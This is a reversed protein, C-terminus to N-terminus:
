SREEEHEVKPIRVTVTTGVDLESHLTIGYREGFWIKLRDNVNKVGIGGSDSKEKQLIKRCQEETMGVGNDSVTILIDDPCDPAEHVSIVIEGEDVMRDIGHYIANEILPQITIKNCLYAGLSEDVDFRYSFQDRYRYSQIILYSKAHQLEDSLPILEHGRSISIRFLRALAGVMRSAEADKGQECMWQISDLTNYLFHPNIQAQLAKLETKRLATEEKRVQEMLEQVRGTLHAFSDSLTQLEAVTAPGATYRFAEANQEFRKMEDALAHVPRSVTRSYVLLVACLLVACCALSIGISWVIRDRGEAAIEDTYSVGVIRWRSDTATKIARIVTGDTHVGDALAAVAATDEEKLHSFILQQQPHYVLHGDEDMIYCYGHRGIGVKDVYGALEAFNFDIAIYVGGNFVPAPIRAALTVVWPYVGEYLTQVHPASLAFDETIREFRTRDFSLDRLPTEKLRHGSGASVRIGGEADYVTVAFIEREIATLAAIQTKFEEPSLDEQVMSRIVTLKDKMEDLSNSVATETQEVSQSANVEANRRIAQNYAHTFVTICVAVAMLIALTVSLVNITRLRVSLRRVHPSRQSHM